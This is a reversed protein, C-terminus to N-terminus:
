SLQRLAKRLRKMEPCGKEVLQWFRIGHSRYKLHCLEHIMM